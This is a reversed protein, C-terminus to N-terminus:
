HVIFATSWETQVEHHPPLIGKWVISSSQAGIQLKISEDVLSLISFKNVTEMTWITGFNGLPLHGPSCRFPRKKLPVWGKDTIYRELIYLMCQLSIFYNYALIHRYDKITHQFVESSSKRLVISHFYFRLLETGNTFNSPCFKSSVPWRFFCM